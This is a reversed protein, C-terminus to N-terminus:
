INVFDILLIDKDTGNEKIRKNNLKAYLWPFWDDIIKPKTVSSHNEEETPEIEFKYDIEWNYLNRGFYFRINEFKDELYKCFLKFNVVNDPTYQKETRAEHLIRVYVDKKANLWDLCELLEDQTIKYEIAGHAIVTENNDFRVRLDFCRVGYIGYQDYISCNQCRATFAILRM